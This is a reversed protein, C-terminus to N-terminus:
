LKSLLDSKKAEFEAQSLIGSEKLESLKQINAFIMDSNIQQATQVQTQAVINATQIAQVRKYEKEPIFDNLIKHASFDFKLTREVGSDDVYTLVTCRTDHEILTSTIENTKKRSGIIAGVEGAVIGGIIAGSISSGGGGGGSIKNERYFDGEVTFHKINSLPIKLIDDLHLIRGPLESYVNDIKLRSGNNVIWFKIDNPSTIRPNLYINNNDKWIWFSIGKFFIYPASNPIASSKKYRSYKEKFKQEEQKKQIIDKPKPILLIIAIFIGVFPALLAFILLWEM